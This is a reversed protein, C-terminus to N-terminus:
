FDRSSKDTSSLETPKVTAMTYIDLTICSQFDTPQNGGPPSTAELSHNLQASAKWSGKYGETANYHFLWFVDFSKVFM